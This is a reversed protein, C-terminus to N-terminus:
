RWPEAARGRARHLWEKLVPRVARAQRPTIDLREIRCVLSQSYSALACGPSSSSSRNDRRLRRSASLSELEVGAKKPFLLQFLVLM